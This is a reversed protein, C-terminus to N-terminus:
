NKKEMREGKGSEGKRGRDSERERLGAKKKKREKKPNRPFM